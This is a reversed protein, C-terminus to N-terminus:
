EVVKGTTYTPNDGDNGEFVVETTAGCEECRLYLKKVMGDEDSDDGDISLKKSQCVSCHYQSLPDFVKQLINEYVGVLSICLTVCTSAEYYTASRSHTIKNAYDWTSETLKKIISRYDANESGKLYFQIFLECKRKFNSAQPQEGDGAMAPDYIHNGLPAIEANLTVGNVFDEPSYESQAVSMRQMLGIHFSYVEDAGFYYASQPYLNMPIGDGEVVWWDGDTDTKVNWVRVDVGLDDFNQETKASLVTCKGQSQWEVYSKVDEFTRNGMKTGGPVAKM